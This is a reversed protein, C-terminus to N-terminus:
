GSEGILIFAAWNKPEPYTQRTKLMGTRLAEAFNPNQQWAQYFAGMLEATAVDPVPWLSVITSPVGAALLARSLGIIGDGTIQGRGTDCASLVVLEANLRYGLNLIEEATLLGDGRDPALAIAGKLPEDADFIGHTALHILNANKLQQQIATETAAEALFPQTNLIEAITQAERESGPLPAFGDPMPSPNGVVLPTQEIGQIQKIQQRRQHTSALVQISPSSVITHHEILYNGEPNKLAAFPVLFLEGQPIFIVKQEPTRPLQDAIPQILIQYLQRLNTQSSQNRHMSLYTTIVLQRLSINLSDLNISRFTVEGDPQIVWIYIEAADGLQKGQGMFDDKPIISYEVITANQSQAIQKIQNITPPKASLSPTIDPQVSKQILLEIFARTRGWESVELAAEPQQQTILVQQLLNYTLAQTDFLSVKDADQLPNRLRDLITLANILHKKALELQHSEFYVHALNNLAKAEQQPLNLTEAIALSEQHYEIAQPYDELNEYLVGLNGLAAIKMREHKISNAIELSQQYYDQAEVIKGLAQYAIGLNNLLHGIGEDDNSKKALEVSNQYFEIASEWQGWNAALIGLHGLAIGQIEINNIEEAIELSNQYAQRSKKYQGLSEETNGLNMWLQAELQPQSLPQILQLAQQLNQRSQQYNGLAKQSIALNGLAAVEAMSQELQRALSLQQQHFQIAQNYQSLQYYIIGIKGLIDVTKQSNNSHKFRQLAKQYYDLAQRHERLSSYAAGLYTLVEAEQTQNLLNNDDILAQKWSAIAEEIQGNKYYEIGQQILPNVDITQTALIQNKIIFIDANNHINERHKETLLLFPLIILLFHISPSKM